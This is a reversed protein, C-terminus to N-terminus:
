LKKFFKAFEVENHVTFTLVRKNDNHNDAVSPNRKRNYMVRESRSSIKIDFM